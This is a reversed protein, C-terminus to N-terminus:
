APLTDVPAQGRNQQSALTALSELEQCFYEYIVWGDPIIESDALVCLNANQCYSWLTMNLATGDFVQGTSFWNEVVSHELYLPERPGPVNSLLVNGFIGFKGQQSNIRWRILSTLWPPSLQVLTNIDAGRSAAIHEKMQAASRQSARLREMPDEIEVHLWTFDVTAFNGEGQMGEPRNGSIPIGAILPGNAPDYNLDRLLKRIAGACCSLFLDNLTVGLARRTQQLSDLPISDCVFSRGHSLIRNIPTKPMMSAVPPKPLGEEEYRRELARMKKLGSIVKPLNHAIIGPLDRAGLLLSKFWSPVKEGQWVQTPPPPCYGPERSFYQQMAYSAGVGDFYAHHVMTVLAVKNNELGEVVWTMWLPRSRDLQYAYVDAMFECLARQDGPAPCEVRRLHYNLNFDADEVWLPHSLGLPSPVYKWRFAPILHLRSKVQQKYNEFSWGGPENAPDLIAIKLTHMYCRPTEMGLLFADAGSMRKM